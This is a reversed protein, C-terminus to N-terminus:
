LLMYVCIFTQKKMTREGLNRRPKQLYKYIEEETFYNDNRNLQKKIKIYMEEKIFITYNEEIKM